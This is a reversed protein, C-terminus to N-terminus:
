PFNVRWINPVSSFCIQATPGERTDWMIYSGAQQNSSLIYRGCFPWLGYSTNVTGECPMCWWHVAASVLVSNLRLRRLFSQIENSNKNAHQRDYCGFHKTCAINHVHSSSVLQHLFMFSGLKLFYALSTQPKSGCFKLHLRDIHGGNDARPIRFHTKCYM